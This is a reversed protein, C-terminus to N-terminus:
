GRTTAPLGLMVRKDFTNLKAEPKSADNYHLFVQACTKGKFRTRWHELDCGRYIMMDGVNLNVSVGKPPNKKLIVKNNSLAKVVGSKGTPDIFIPWKDGGLHITTSVECSHRDKHRVLVDGKKYIRAYSYTPILSLGTLKSTLPLMKMLLTDMVQNGYHAYTRPVQSDQWSGFLPNGERIIRNHIMYFTVDRHMLFYNFIFNALEFSVANKVLEYKKNKFSM